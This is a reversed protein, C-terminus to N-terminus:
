IRSGITVIKISEAFKELVGQEEAYESMLDLFSCMGKGFGIYDTIVVKKGTKEAVEVIHKPTVRISSLYRKYNKKEIETPENKKSKNM